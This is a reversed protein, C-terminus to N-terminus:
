TEVGVYVMMADTSQLAPCRKDREERRGEQDPFAPVVSLRHSVEDRHGREALSEQLKEASEHDEGRETWSQRCHGNSFSELLRPVPCLLPQWEGPGRGGSESFRNKNRPPHQCSLGATPMVAAPIRDDASGQEWARGEPRVPAEEGSVRSCGCQSCPRASCPECWNTM